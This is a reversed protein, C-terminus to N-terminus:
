VRERCSSRGIKLTQNASLTEVYAGSAPFTQAWGDQQVERVTYTDGPRDIELRSVEFKPNPATAAFFPFAGLLCMAPIGREAAAALLAGNLGSVRGEAYREIGARDLEEVPDLPDDEALGVLHPRDVHVPAEPHRGGSEVQGPTVHQEGIAIEHAEVTEDDRRPRGHAPEGALVLVGVHDLEAGEVVREGQALLDDAAHSYSLFGDYSTPGTEAM